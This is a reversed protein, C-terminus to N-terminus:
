NIKRPRGSKKEKAIAPNVIGKFLGGERQNLFGKSCMDILLIVIEEDERELKNAIEILTKGKNWMEEVVQLESEYFSLDFEDAAIYLKEKPTIKRTDMRERSIFIGGRKRAKKAAEASLFSRAEVQNRAINM